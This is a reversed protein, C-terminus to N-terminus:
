DCLKAASQRLIVGCWAVVVWKLGNKGFKSRWFVHRCRLIYGWIPGIWRVGNEDDVLDGFKTMGQM